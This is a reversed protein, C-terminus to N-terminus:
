DRGRRQDTRVQGRIEGGPFKASHVNAYTAGSLIADVLEDFENVGGQSAAIGQAAPGVINAATLVGTITAQSLPCAPPQPFTAPPVTPPNGCLFVSIGGNTHRQGLHIHSQLVTDEMGEYSLEYSITQNERDITAKFRGRAGSSISPVENTPVLEASVRLPRHRNDGGATVGLALLTLAIGVAPLLERRLM